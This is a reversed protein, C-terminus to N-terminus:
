QRPLQTFSQRHKCAYFLGTKDNKDSFSEKIRVLSNVHSIFIFIGTFNVNVGM